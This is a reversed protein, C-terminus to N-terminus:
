ADGGSVLPGRCHVLLVLLFPGDAVVGIGPALAFVASSGLAAIWAGYRDLATALIGRDGLIFAM